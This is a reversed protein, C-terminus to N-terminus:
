FIRHLFFTTSVILSQTLAANWSEERVTRKETLSTDNRVVHKCVYTYMCPIATQPVHIIDGRRAHLRNSLLYTSSDSLSTISLQQYTQEPQQQHALFIEATGHRYARCLGHGDTGLLRLWPCLVAGSPASMGLVSVTSITAPESGVMDCALRHALVHSMPQSVLARCKAVMPAIICCKVRNPAVTQDCHTAPMPAVSDKQRRCSCRPWIGSSGPDSFSRGMKKWSSPAGLKLSMPYSKQDNLTRLSRAASSERCWM